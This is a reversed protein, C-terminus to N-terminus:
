LKVNDYEEQNDLLTKDELSNLTEQALNCVIKDLKGVTYDMRTCPQALDKLTQVMKVNDRKLILINSTSM